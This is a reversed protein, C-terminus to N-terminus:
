GEETNKWLSPSSEREVSKNAQNVNLPPNHKRGGQQFDQHLFWCKDPMNEFRCKENKPMCPKCLEIHEKKRHSMLSNMTNFGKKCSFCTFPESNPSSTHLKWCDIGFKCKNARYFICDETKEYDDRKINRLNWITTFQLQCM